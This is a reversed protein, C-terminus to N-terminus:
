AKHELLIAMLAPRFDIAEMGRLHLANALALRVPRVLEPHLDRHCGRELARLAALKREVGLGQWAIRIVAMRQLGDDGIDLWGDSTLDLANEGIGSVLPVISGCAVGESDVGWSLPSPQRRRYLW